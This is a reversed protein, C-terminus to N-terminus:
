CVRVGATSVDLMFQVSQERTWGMAHMGTDVILRCCRFAEMSLQGMQDTPQEYFGLEKGLTELVVLSVFRVVLIMCTLM